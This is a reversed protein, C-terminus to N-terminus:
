ARDDGGKYHFQPLPRTAFLNYCCILDVLAILMTILLIGACSYYYLDSVPNILAVAVSLITPILIWTLGMGRGKRADIDDMRFWARFWFVIVAVASLM